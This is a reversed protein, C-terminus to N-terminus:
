VKTTDLGVLAELEGRTMGIGDNKLELPHSDPLVIATCLNSPEPGDYVRVGLGRATCPKPSLFTTCALDQLNLENTSWTDFHKPTLKQLLSLAASVDPKPLTTEVYYPVDDSRCMKHRTEKSSSLAGESGFTFVQGDRSHVRESIRMSYAEATKSLVIVRDSLDENNLRYVIKDRSGLLRDFSQITISQRSDGYPLEM